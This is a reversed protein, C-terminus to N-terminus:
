NDVAVGNGGVRQRTKVPAETAHQGGSLKMGAGSRGLAGSGSAVIFWAHGPWKGLSGSLAHGTCGGPHLLKAAPCTPVPTCHTPCAWAQHTHAAVAKDSSRSLSFDPTQYGLHNEAWITLMWHASPVGWTWGWRAVGPSAPPRGGGRRGPGSSGQPIGGEVDGVGKTGRESGVRPNGDIQGGPGQASPMHGTSLPFSPLKGEAGVM